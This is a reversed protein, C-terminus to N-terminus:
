ATAAKAKTVQELALRLEAVEEAPMQEVFHLLTTTRDSGAALVLQMYAATYQERTLDPRYRYAKGHKKRTLLGKSRLNDMVTMVTTYAIAREQSLVELVDRVSVPNGASWVCEMVASELQGLQRM